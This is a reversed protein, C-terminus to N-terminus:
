RNKTHATKMGCSNVSFQTLNHQCFGKLVLDEMQSSNLIEVGNDLDQSNEDVRDGSM